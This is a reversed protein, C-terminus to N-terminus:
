RRLPTPTMSLLMAPLPLGSGTPETHRHHYGAAARNTGHDLSRHGPRRRDRRPRARFGPCADLGRADPTCKDRAQGGPMACTRFGRTVLRSIVHSLRPLTSNTHEALATSRLTHDPAESLMAMAMYEFHSLGADQQLQNDLAGPLLEVVAILGLWAERKEPARLRPEREAVQRM